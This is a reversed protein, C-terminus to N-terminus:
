STSSTVHCPEPSNQLGVARVKSMITSSHTLKLSTKRDDTPYHIICRSANRVRALSANYCYITQFAM